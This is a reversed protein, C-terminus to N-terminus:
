GNGEEAAEGAEGLRKGLQEIVSNVIAMLESLKLGHEQMEDIVADGYDRWAESSPNLRPAKGAELVYGRNWWCLGIAYGAVDLLQGLRALGADEETKEAQLPKLLDILALAKGYSPFRFHFDAGAIEVAWYRDSDPPVALATERPTM